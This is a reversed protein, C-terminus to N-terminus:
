YKKIEIVECTISFLVYVFQHIFPKISKDIQYLFQRIITSLSQTGNNKGSMDLHYHGSHDMTVHKEHLNKFNIGM